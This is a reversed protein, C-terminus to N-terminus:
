IKSVTKPSFSLQIVKGPLFLACHAWKGFLINGLGPPNSSPSSLLPELTPKCVPNPHASGSSRKEQTFFASVHWPKLKKFLGFNKNHTDMATFGFGQGLAASTKRPEGGKDKCEKGQNAVAQIQGKSSLSPWSTELRNGVFLLNPVCLTRTGLCGM